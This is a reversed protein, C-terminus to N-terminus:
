SQPEPRFVSLEALTHAGDDARVTIMMGAVTIGIGPETINEPVVTVSRGISWYARPYSEGDMTLMAGPAQDLGNWRGLQNYPVTMLEIMLDDAANVGLVRKQGEFALKQSANLAAAVALVIVGLITTAILSELLTLGRRTAARRAAPNRTARIPEPM